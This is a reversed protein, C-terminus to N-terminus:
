EGENEIVRSVCISYLHSILVCSFCPRVKSRTCFHVHVRTCTYLYTYTNNYTHIYTRMHMHMYM